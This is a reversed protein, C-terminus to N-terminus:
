GVLTRLNEIATLISSHDALPTLTPRPDHISHRAWEYGLVSAVVTIVSRPNM